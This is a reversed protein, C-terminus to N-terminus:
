KKNERNRKFTQRKRVSTSKSMLVVTGGRGWEKNEERQHKSHRCLFVCVAALTSLPSLLLNLWTRSSIRSSCLWAFFFRFLVSLNSSNKNVYSQTKKLLRLKHFLALSCHALRLVASFACPAFWLKTKSMIWHQWSQMFLFYGPIFLNVALGFSAAM